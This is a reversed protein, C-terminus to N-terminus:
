QEEVGEANLLVHATQGAAGFSPLAKGNLEAEVGGANGLDLSFFREGKWEILDGAKLDYQQSVAGDITINLWCDQNVKLRLVVGSAAPAPTAADAPQAAPETAQAPASVAPAVASSVRPQVPTPLPVPRVAPAVAPAKRVREEDRDRFLYASFFVLVLLVLPITWRNRPTGITRPERPDAPRPEDAVAVAPKLSTEYMAVLRDPDLGLYAAYVRLFGKVYAPSPLKDFADAELSILYIKGIRTARAVEDLTVERAQRAASLLGGVTEKGSEVTASEVM